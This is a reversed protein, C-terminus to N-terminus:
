MSTASIQRGQEKTGAHEEEDEEAEVDEAEPRGSDAVEEATIDSNEIGQGTSIHM